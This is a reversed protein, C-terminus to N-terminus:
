SSNKIAQQVRTQLENVYNMVRKGENNQLDVLAGCKLLVEACKPRCWMSAYILATNGLNDQINVDTKMNVPEREMTERNFYEPKYDCLLETSDVWHHKSQVAYMLATKGSNDQINPNAKCNLLPIIPCSGVNIVSWILPTQGNEDTTNLYETNMYIFADLDSLSNLESNKPDSLISKFKNFFSTENLFEEVNSYTSFTFPVRLKSDKSEKSFLYTTSSM